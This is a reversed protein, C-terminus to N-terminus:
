VNFANESDITVGDYSSKNLNMKECDEDEEKLNISNESKISHMNNGEENFTKFAKNISSSIGYNMILLSIQTLIM